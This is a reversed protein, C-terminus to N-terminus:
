AEGDGDEKALPRKEMATTLVQSAARTIAPIDLARPEKWSNLRMAGIWEQTMESERRYVTANYDDLAVAYVGRSTHGPGNVELLLHVEPGYWEALFVSVAWWEGHRNQAFVADGQINM